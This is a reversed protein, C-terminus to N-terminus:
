ILSKKQVTLLSMSINKRAPFYVSKEENTYIGGWFSDYQILDLQGTSKNFISIKSIEYKSNLLASKTMNKNRSEAPKLSILFLIALFFFILIQVALTKNYKINKM